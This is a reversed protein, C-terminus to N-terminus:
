DASMVFSAVRKQRSLHVHLSTAPDAKSGVSCTLDDDGPPTQVGLVETVRALSEGRNLVKQSGRTLVSGQVIWVRWIGSDTRRSFRIKTGGVVVISKVDGPERLHRELQELLAGRRRGLAREVEDMTMRPRVGDIDLPEALKEDMSAVFNRLSADADGKPAPPTGTHRSGLLGAVATVFLLLFLVAVNSRM